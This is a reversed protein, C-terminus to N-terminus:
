SVRFPWSRPRSKRGGQSPLRLARRGKLDQLLGV